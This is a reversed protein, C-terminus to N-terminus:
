KDTAVYIPGAFPKLGSNKLNIIYYYTGTPVKGSNGVSSGHADGNWDNQYNNNKYIEAGWRNFIQLEVVFGCDEVGSITFFENFSDGNATVTKSIVVDEAGCPLVVCDDDITVNVEVEAPCASETISYMFTYIGVDVSSPDFVSGDIIADGSVVTWTGDTSYDGSLLEFLDFESDLVCRNADFATITNNIEVNINQTFTAVNGCDDTVTWTRVISYDEFGNSQNSDENFSVSINNSCSDEFVLEPVGPVDDCYATINDDLPTLLTPATTDQVTIIQIHLTENGCADSAIWTREIIYDGVCAGNTIEEEFTVTADGCNDNATLTEATPVADCEVTVDTPLAENFTPATTDQVTISQSHVTENGCADAATWTRTLTYSNDCTSNTIEEEFTVTADGCNDNATLTEATPVADCEVTVDTPLAENFTPATTDQVTISQSHVTENGCADAATWTRTLTYSNDCTSNTIEEEFTVTADGCNDNATLTEATPV